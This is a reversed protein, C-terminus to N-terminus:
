RWGGVCVCGFIVQVVLRALVTHQLPKVYRALKPRSAIYALAPAVKAGLRLPDAAAEDLAAALDKLEPAVAVAVAQTALQEILEARTPVRAAGLLGVLRMQKEVDVDTGEDSRKADNGPPAVPVALTALLTSSATAELDEAFLDRHERSLQFLRHFAMAHFVYDESMWFVQARVCLFPPTLV